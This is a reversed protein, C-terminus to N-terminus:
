CTHVLRYMKVSPMQPTHSLPIHQRWTHSHFQDLGPTINTVMSHGKRQFAALREAPDVSFCATTLLMRTKAGTYKNAM